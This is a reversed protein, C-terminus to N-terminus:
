EAEPEPQPDILEANARLASAFAQHDAATGRGLNDVISALSRASRADIILSAVGEVDATALVHAPEPGEYTSEFQGACTFVGHEPDPKVWSAPSTHYEITLDGHTATCWEPCKM